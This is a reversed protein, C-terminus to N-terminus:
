KKNAGSASTAGGVAMGDEKDAVMGALGKFLGAMMGSATPKSRCYKFEPAWLCLKERKPDGGTCKAEDRVPEGENNCNCWEGRVDVNEPDKSAIDESCKIEIPEIPAPEKPQTQEVEKLSYAYPVKWTTSKAARIMHVKAPARSHFHLFSFSPFFPFFLLFLLLLSIHLFSL